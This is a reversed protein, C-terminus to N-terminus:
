KHLASAGACLRWDKMDRIVGDRAFDYVTDHCAFNGFAADAADHALKRGFRAFFGPFLRTLWRGLVISPRTHILWLVARPVGPLLLADGAPRMQGLRQAFAADNGKRFPCSACMTKAGEPFYGHTMVLGTGVFKPMSM